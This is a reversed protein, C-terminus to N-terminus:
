LAFDVALSKLDPCSEPVAQTALAPRVLSCLFLPLLANGLCLCARNFISVWNLLWFPRLAKYWNPFQAAILVKKKWTFHFKGVFQRSTTASWLLQQLEWLKAWVKLWDNNASYFCSMPVSCTAFWIRHLIAFRFRPGTWPFPTQESEFLDACHSWIATHLLTSVIDSTIQVQNCEFSIWHKFTMYHGAKVPKLKSKWSSSKKLM